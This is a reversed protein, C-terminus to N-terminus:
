KAMELGNDLGASGAEHLYRALNLRARYLRAHLADLPVEAFRSIEALSYGVARLALLMQHGRDLRAWARGLEAEREAGAWENALAKTLQGIGGKSAAYGPVTIGGQYTLLSAIFIVKGRGRAIM